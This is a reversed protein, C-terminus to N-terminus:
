YNVSDRGSTSQPLVITKIVFSHLYNACSELRTLDQLKIGSTHSRLRTRLGALFVNFKSVPFLSTGSDPSTPLPLTCPATSLVRYLEYTYGVGQPLKCHSLSRSGKPSLRQPGVSSSDRRTSCTCIGTPLRDTEETVVVCM